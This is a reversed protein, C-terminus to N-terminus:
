APRRHVDKRYMLHVMVCAIGQGGGRVRMVGM